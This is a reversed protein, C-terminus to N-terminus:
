GGYKAGWSTLPGDIGVTLPVAWRDDSMAKVIVDKMEEVDELPVDAIIEDHVPLLLHDGADSEDLRILAEKFVDAAMGQILANVLAYDRDNDSLQLRGLPTKVYAQGENRKRAEVTKAVSNQFERVGPFMADYQTLFERAAEVPVGATLAIKDAGAGYIKAFGVGKAIQRRPDKKTITSDNFVRQATALHIDGSNIADILNKDQAFHALIRMEVGDFDASLLTNGERPIFCDRVIRGRPLTQLAPREMSMRGTRAGLQNMRPHVFGNEDVYELFTDLYTSRIKESKRRALVQYALTQGESLMSSDVSEFEVGLIQTIVDEDLAYAGSNTRATLEIGLRQLAETVERNSGPNIKYKQLCWDSVNNAFTALEASKRKTYEIDIRSGRAEMDALVFQVAREVEYVKNYSTKIQHSLKEYMHATLVTDLAGYVWYLQFDIPITAWTWKQLTMVEDLKQSAYAATSDVLRAANPKLATSAAPNIIHCMLRTDHILERPMRIGAHREIFRVDFKSNHGVMERDYKSIAEVAVGGWREWPISWGRQLDGFQVLRLRDKEPDLGTTETDFALVSRREGLWRMFEQAKDISDVLELEVDELGM